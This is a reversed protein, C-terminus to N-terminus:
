SNASPAASNGWVDCLHAATTTVHPQQLMGLHDGPADRLTITGQVVAGWEVEADMDMHDFASREQAKVILVDGHFNPLQSRYNLMAQLYAEFRFERLALDQLEHSDAAIRHSRARSRKSQDEKRARLRDLIYRPGQQQFLNWHARLRRWGHRPTPLATDLLGVTAVSHGQKQLRRAVEYALVGGFSVGALRYPGEPQKKRIEAIYQDALGEVTLDQGDGSILSEEVPLFVGFGAISDELALALNRYLQIGCLFFAPQDRPGHNLAIIAPDQGGSGERIRKALGAVTPSEFVMALTVNAEPIQNMRALARTALLSHAGLEFLDDHRGVRNVDLLEAWLIALDEEVPTRPPEYPGDAGPAPPAPLRSRDVKGNDSLPMRALEVLASPLMFDPLHEALFARLDEPEPANGQEPVFYAVLRKGRVGDDQVSAAAQQVLPHRALVFALEGPEIRFGRIKVQDDLRGIFETNGDPLWRVLDGTAYMTAEAEGCFPDPLFKEATLKPQGIYGLAVGKGGIHLHGPVGIPVPKGRSDLVWAKANPIPKGISVSRLDRGALPPIAYTHSFTTAETPGFGNTLQLKPLAKQCRRIHEPSLAEGGTLVHKMKALCDVDEEVLTNFLAATIWGTDADEEECLRRINAPTPQEELIICKGGHLLPGWVEFTTADFAPPAMHLIRSEPGLEAWDLGFLLRLIARHPVTVGKPIGTSGSTFNVYAPSEPDPLITPPQPIEGTDATRKAAGETDSSLIPIKLDVLMAQHEGPAVIATAACVEVMARLRDVPWNPDLPVYAAGAKLTGLASGILDDSREMLLIVFDGQQVGVQALQGALFDSRQDLKQYTWHRGSCSLACNDPHLAAVQRFVTAVDLNPFPADTDNWEQLIKKKEAPALIELDGLPCNSDASAALVLRRLQGLMREATETTFLDDDFELSIRLNGEEEQSFLALDCKSGANHLKEEPFFSIEELGDLSLSWGPANSHDYLVQFLPGPDPGRTERLSEVVADLPVDQHSLAGLVTKQVKALLSAFGEEPDLDAALAVTNVQYGVMSELEPRTRGSVPSGVVFHKQGSWRHLLVQWAALLIMFRSCGSRNALGDVAQTLDAHPGSTAWGGSRSRVSPRAGKTPLELVPPPPVLHEKWWAIGEAFAKSVDLSSEWQAFDGYPLSKPVPSFPSGARANGYLSGLDDLLLSITWGETIIHHSILLLIGDAEGIKLFHAQFLPEKELRFPTQSLQRTRNLADNEPSGTASFDEIQLLTDPPSSFSQQVGHDGVSLRARLVEHRRVLEILARDLAPADLSGRLRMACPVSFFPSNPALQQSYWVQRQAGTLPVADDTRQGQPIASSSTGGLGEAALKEKLRRQQEKSFQFPTM